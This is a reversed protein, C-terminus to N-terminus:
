LFGPPSLCLCIVTVERDTSTVLQVSRPARHCPRYPQQMGTFSDPYLCIHYIHRVQPRVPRLLPRGDAPHVASQPQFLPRTTSHAVATADATARAQEIDDYLVTTTSYSTSAMLSDLQRELATIDLATSLVWPFFRSPLFKTPSALKHIFSNSPPNTVTLIVPLPACSTMLVALTTNVLSRVHAWASHCRGMYMFCPQAAMM